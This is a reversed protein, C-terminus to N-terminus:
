VSQSQRRPPRSVSPGLRKRLLSSCSPAGGGGGAQCRPVDTPRRSPLSRIPAGAASADSVRERSRPARPCAHPSASLPLDPLRSPFPFLSCVARRPAPSLPSRRGPSRGPSFFFLFIRLLRFLRLASASARARRPRRRSMASAHLLRLSRAAASAHLSRPSRDAASAHLFRPSRAAAFFPHPPVLFVLTSLPCHPQAPLPRSSVSISPPPRMFNHRAFLSRFSGPHPAVVRHRGFSSALPLAPSRAPPPPSHRIVPSGPNLRRLTACSSFSSFPIRDISSIRPSATFALPTARRHHPPRPSFFSRPHHLALKVPAESREAEPRQGPGGPPHTSSLRWPPPAFTPRALLTPTRLAFSFFPRPNVAFPFLSPSPSPPPPPALSSSPSLSLPFLPSSPYLACSPSYSPILLLWFAFPASSLPHVFPMQRPSGRRERTATQLM